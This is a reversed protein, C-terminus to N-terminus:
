SPSPNPDEPTKAGDQSAALDSAGIGTNEAQDGAGAIGSAQDVADDALEATGGDAFAGVSQDHADDKLPRNPDM